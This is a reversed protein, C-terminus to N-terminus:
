PDPAGERSGAASGGAPTLRGAAEARTREAELGAGIREFAQLARNFADAAEQPRGEDRAVRAVIREGSGVAYWYQARTAVDIGTRTMQMAEDLRGSRRQAEGLWITALAHWQPFAFAELEAVTTQLHRLTQEHDGAELRAFALFLSAYARSVRDPARDLSRQCAEIAAATHGRSAEIWGRTYGAYTDLRPDGIERGVAVVRETEAVAADFAGISLHNLALYFHAMGLWWRQDPHAALIRVAEDGHRIGEAAHGSWYAELALVGHAKGGTARDGARAAAAISQRACEAAGHRDGLRSYM